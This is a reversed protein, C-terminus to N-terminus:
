LDRRFAGTLMAYKEFDEVWDFDKDIDKDSLVKAQESLYQQQKEILKELSAFRKAKVVPYVFVSEAGELPRVKEKIFKNLTEPSDAAVNMVIDEDGLSYTVYIPFM